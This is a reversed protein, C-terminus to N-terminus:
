EAQIPSDNSGSDIVREPLLAQYPKNDDDDTMITVNIVPSTDTAERNMEATNAVQEIEAANRLLQMAVNASIGGKAAETRLVKVAIELAERGISAHRLNMEHNRELTDAALWLYTRTDYEKAKAAWGNQYSMTRIMKEGVEYEIEPYKEILAAYLSRYSRKPGLLCYEFFAVREWSSWDDEVLGAFIEKMDPAPLNGM